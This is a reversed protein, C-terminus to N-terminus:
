RRFDSELDISMSYSDPPRAGCEDDSPVAHPLSTSKRVLQGNRVNILVISPRQGSCRLAQFYGALTTFRMVDVAVIVDGREFGMRAAPSNAQVTDVRIGRNPVGDPSPVPANRGLDVVTGQFGLRPADAAQLMETSMASMVIAAAMLGYCTKAM